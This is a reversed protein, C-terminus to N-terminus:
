LEALDSLEYLLRLLNTEWLSWRVLQIYKESASQILDISTPNIRQGVKENTDSSDALILILPLIAM